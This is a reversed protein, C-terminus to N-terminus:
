LRNNKRKKRESKVGWSLPYPAIILRSFRLTHVARTAKKNRTFKHIERPFEIIGLIVCSDMRREQALDLHKRM